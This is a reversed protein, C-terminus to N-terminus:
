ANGSLDGQAELLDHKTNPHKSMVMSTEAGFSRLPCLNPLLILATSVLISSWCGDLNGYWSLVLRDRGLLYQSWYLQEGKLVAATNILATRATIAVRFESCISRQVARV